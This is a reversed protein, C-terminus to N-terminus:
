PPAIAEPKKDHNPGLFCRYYHTMAKRLSRSYEPDAFQFDRKLYFFRDSPKDDDLTVGMGERYFALADHGESPNFDDDFEPQYRLWDQTGPKLLVVDPGDFFQDRTADLISGDPLVVWSHLCIPTKLDPATIVGSHRKFSIGSEGELWDSVDMCLGPIETQHGKKLRESKLYDARIRDRFACAEEILGSPLYRSELNGRKKPLVLDLYAAESDYLVGGLINAQERNVHEFASLKNDVDSVFELGDINVTVLKM